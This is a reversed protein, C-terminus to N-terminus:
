NKGKIRPSFFSNQSALTVTTLITFIDLNVRTPIHSWDNWWQKQRKLIRLTDNIVKPSAIDKVDLLHTKIWCVVNEKLIQASYSGSM